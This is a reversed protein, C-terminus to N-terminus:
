KESFNYRGSPIGRSEILLKRVCRSLEPDELSTFYGEMLTKQAMEAANIICQTTPRAAAEANINGGRRSIQHSIFDSLATNTVVNEPQIRQQARRAALRRKLKQSIVADEIMSDTNRKMREASAIIRSPTTEPKLKPTSIEVIHNLEV